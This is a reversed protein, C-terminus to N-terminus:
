VLSWVGYHALAMGLGVGGGVLNAILTRITTSRFDMAKMFLIGHVQSAANIVLGLSAWRILPALESNGLFRSISGAFALTGVCLVANSSINFWFVSDLHQPELDQRQILATGMGQDAVMSVFTLYVGVLAVLGFASPELLRALATFVLFSLLRQGIITIAQWKLGHVVQAKM